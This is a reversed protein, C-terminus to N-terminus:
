PPCLGQNLRLAIRGSFFGTLTLTRRGLPFFYRNPHAHFHFRGRVQASAWNIEEFVLSDGETGVTTYTAYQATTRGRPREYELLAMWTAGIGLGPATFSYAQATPVGCVRMSVLQRYGGREQSTAQVMLQQIQPDFYAVISDPGPLVFWRTGDVQVAVTGFQSAPEPDPVTPLGVSDDCATLAAIFVAAMLTPHMAVNPHPWVLMPGASPDSGDRGGNVFAAWAPVPQVAGALNV